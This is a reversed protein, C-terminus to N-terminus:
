PQQLVELIVFIREPVTGSINATVGVTGGSPSGQIFNVTTGNVMDGGNHFTALNTSWKYSATIDDAPTDSLPHSFTFTSGSLQGVIIGQSFVGPNTGFYNELGNKHGDDDPDDDFGTEGGLGTFGAIWSPYDTTVPASTVVIGSFRGNFEGMTWTLSSEGTGNVFDIRAMYHENNNASDGNHFDAIVESGMTATMGVPLDRYAGYIIYVSGSAMGTIDISGSAGSIDNIMASYNPTTDFANGNPATTTWINASSRSNMAADSTTLDSIISDNAAAGTGTDSELTNPANSVANWFRYAVVPNNFTTDNVITPGAVGDVQNASGQYGLYSAEVSLNFQGSSQGTGAPSNDSELMITEGIELTSVGTPTLTTASASPTSNATENLNSSKDRAKVVYSYSTSPSLGSDTYTQSDQWGSDNGGGSTCTFYYEVGSSDSALNATMTIQSTSIAAPPSAWTMPDPTPATMDPTDTTASESASDGTENNNSSMDRAKVTYTYSTSPDLGTDNYTPSAQWGSDHTGDIITTNTFYYQVGSDDTALNATMVIETDSVAAPPSSWSMPNPTPATEDPPGVLEAGIVDNYSAAFRIEDLLVRDGRRFTLTDYGTQDVTTTLTSIPSAPQVLDTGPTFLEITDPAGPTAGWTIKGVILGHTGVEYQPSSNAALTAGGSDAPFTAAKPIGANLYIGVGTGGHIFFDTYGSGFPGDSLAVALRSNSRNGETDVGALMSFWLTAGDDLLGNDALASARISRTGGFRNQGATFDSLKAGGVPLDGYTLGGATVLATSHANWSGDLGVESDSSKLNLGGAAYDFPEYVLANGSPPGDLNIEITAPTANGTTPVVTYVVSGSSPASTDSYSTTGGPLSAAIVVGDRKLEIGSYTMKNEWTLDVGTPVRYAKMNAISGDFTVTLPDCPDGPM